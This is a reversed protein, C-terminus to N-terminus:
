NEVGLINGQWDFRGLSLQNPGLAEHKPGSFPRNLDVYIGKFFNLNKLGSRVQLRDFSQAQNMASALLRVLEYAHVTAFPAPIVENQHIHFTERYKQWFKKILHDEASLPETVSFTQLFSLDVKKLFSSSDQFFSGGLIGWHSIVPPPKAMRALEKILLSGEPANGVFIVADLQAFIPEESAKVISKSNWAFTKTIAPTLGREKMIKLLSELNGMGWPTDEVVLALEKGKKLARDLLFPAAYQDRISYRFLWSNEDDAPIIASAAAWPILYPIQAARVAQREALVVPSHMGGLIAVTAPNKAINKINAIGRAPTGSHDWISLSLKKGLVGGADNLENIALRAGRLIALASDQAAPSLSLNAAINLFAGLSKPIHEPLYEKYKLILDRHMEYLGAFRSQFGVRREPALPEVKVLGALKRLSRDEFEIALKRQVQTAKKISRLLLSQDEQNLGDLSLRSVSLLQSTYGHRSLLIHSQHQYINKADIVSLPNEQADIVEQELAENLSGFDLFQPFAELAHVQERLLASEMVRILLGSFDEAKQILKNATFVKYGSEWYALPEIGILSLDSALKQGLSSDLTKHAHENNEFLFPLDLLELEPALHTLKSTPTMILDLKGLRALEVMEQDTGLSQGPFIELHIRGDSEQHLIKQLELAGLHQHSDTPMDHGLRLKVQEDAAPKLFVAVSLSVGALILVLAAVIAKAM